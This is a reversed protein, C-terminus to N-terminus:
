ERPSAARRYVTARARGVIVGERKSLEGAAVKGELFERAGDITGRGSATLFEQVTFEGPQRYQQRYEAALATIFDSENLGTDIISM